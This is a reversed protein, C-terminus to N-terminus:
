TPSVEAEVRTLAIPLPAGAERTTQTAAIADAVSEKHGLYTDVGAIQLTLMVSRAAGAVRMSTGSNAAHNTAAILASIGTSDMFSVGTLDVVVPDTEVLQRLSTGLAGANSVDVEGEVRLVVCGGHRELAFSIFPSSQSEAARFERLCVSESRGGEPGGVSDQLRESM